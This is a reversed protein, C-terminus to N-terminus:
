KKNGCQTLNNDIEETPTATWRYLDVMLHGIALLILIVVILPLTRYFGTSKPLLDLM